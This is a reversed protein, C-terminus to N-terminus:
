LKSTVNDDIHHADKQLPNLSPRTDPTASIRRSPRMIIEDVERDDDDDDIIVEPAKSKRWLIGYLYYESHRQKYACDICCFYACKRCYEFVYNHLKYCRCWKDNSALPVQRGCHHCEKSQQRTSNAQIATIDSWMENNIVRCRHGKLCRFREEVFKTIVLTYRFYLSFLFANFYILVILWYANDYPCNDGLERHERNITVCAQIYPITFFSLLWIFWGWGLYTCFIYHIHCRLATLKSSFSDFLVERIGVIMELGAIVIWIYIFIIYRFWETAFVKHTNFSFIGVILDSIYTMCLKRVILYTPLRLEPDEARDSAERIPGCAVQVFAIVMFIAFISRYGGKDPIDQCETLCYWTASFFLIIAEVFETIIHLLLYGARRLGSIAYQFRLLFNQKLVDMTAFIIIITFPRKTFDVENTCEAKLSKAKNKQSKSGTAKQTPTATPTVPTFCVSSSPTPSGPAPTPSGSNCSQKVPYCIGNCQNCLSCYQSSCSCTSDFQVPQNNCQQTCQYSNTTKNSPAYYYYDDDSYTSIDDNNVASLQVLSKLKSSCYFEIHSTFLVEALNALGGILILFLKIKNKYIRQSLSPTLSPSLSTSSTATIAQVNSVAKM